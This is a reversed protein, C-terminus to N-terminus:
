ARNKRNGKVSIYPEMSKSYFRLKADSWPPQAYAVGIRPTAVIDQVSDWDDEDDEVYLVSSSCLSTYNCRKDLALAQCLKGPGEVCNEM